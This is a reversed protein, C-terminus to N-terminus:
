ARAAAMQEQAFAAIGPLGALFSAYNEKLAVILFKAELDLRGQFILDKAKDLPVWGRDEMKVQCKSSLVNLVHEYDTENLTLALNSLARAAAAEADDSGKLGELSPGLVKFLKILLSRQQRAGLQVIRFDIGDINYDHERNM